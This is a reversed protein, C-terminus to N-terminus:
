FMLKLQKQAQKLREVSINHYEPDIEICIFQRNTNHCAVATTGSGSFPDLIVDGSNSCLSILYEFLKIPKVTPHKINYEPKDNVISNQIKNHPVFSLVNQAKLGNKLTNYLSLRQDLKKTDKSITAYENRKSSFTYFDNPNDEFNDEFKKIKAKTEVNNEFGKVYSLTRTLTNYDCFEILSKKMDSWRRRIDNFQKKGKCVIMINEYLRMMDTFMGTANRKYWIVENKYNFKNFAKVNWHTLTPQMGFYVLFTNNKLVRHCQNIFIDIDFGTEIKHNLLGYPPDTIVADVTNDPIQKMLEMCDGLHITNLELM